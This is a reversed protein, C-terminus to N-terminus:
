GFIEKYLKYFAEDTLSKLYERNFNTIWELVSIVNDKERADLKIDMKKGKTILGIKKMIVKKM